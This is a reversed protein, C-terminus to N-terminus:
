IGELVRVIVNERMLYDISPKWNKHEEATPKRRGSLFDDEACREFYETVNTMDSEFIGAWRRRMVSRRRDTVAQVRPLMIMIQHYAEIIEEYPAEPEARRRAAPLPPIEMEVWEAGEHDFAGAAQHPIQFWRQDTSLAVIHTKGFFAQQIKRAPM